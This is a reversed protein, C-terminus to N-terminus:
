VVTKVAAIVEDISIKREEVPTGWKRLIKIVSDRTIGPLISGNLEPTIVKGNIKFCINMTGVEEIYKREVGDLWLVQTFGKIKAEEQALLSAAYYAM